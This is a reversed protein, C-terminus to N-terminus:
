SVFQNFVFFPNSILKRTYVLWKTLWSSGHGSLREDNLLLRMGSEQFTIFHKTSFSKKQRLVTELEDTHHEDTCLVCLSFSFKPVEWLRGRDTLLLRLFSALFLHRISTLLGRVFLFCRSSLFASFGLFYVFIRFRFITGELYLPSSITRPM